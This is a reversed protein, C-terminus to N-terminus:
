FQLRKKKHPHRRADVRSRAETEPKRHFVGVNATKTTKKRSYSSYSNSMESNNSSYSGMGMTSLGSTSKGSAKKKTEYQCFGSTAHTIVLSITITLVILFKKKM